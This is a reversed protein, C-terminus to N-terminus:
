TQGWNPIHAVTKYILHLIRKSGQRDLFVGVHLIHQKIRQLTDSCSSHILELCLWDLNRDRAMVLTSTELSPNTGM